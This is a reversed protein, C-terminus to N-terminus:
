KFVSSVKYEVNDKEKNIKKLENKISGLKKNKKIESNAEFSDSFNQFNKLFKTLDKM